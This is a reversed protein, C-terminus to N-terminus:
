LSNGLLLSLREEADNQTSTGEAISKLYVIYQYLSKDWKELYLKNIYKKFIIKELNEKGNFKIDFFIDKLENKLIKINQFQKNVSEYKVYDEKSYITEVKKSNIKLIDEEELLGWEIMELMEKSIKNNETEKKITGKVNNRWKDMKTELVIFKLNIIDKITKNQIDQSYLLKINKNINNKDLGNVDVELVMYKLDSWRDIYESVKKANTNYIEFVIFQYKPNNTKIILDPRYIEHNTNFTFEVRKDICTVEGAEPLMITEGINILNEKWYKHIADECSCNGKNLHYFHETVINSSKARARIVNGCEPCFYDVGIIADQITIWKSNKDKALWLKVENKM